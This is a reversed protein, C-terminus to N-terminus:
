RLVVQSRRRLAWGRAGPRPTMDEVQYGLREGLAVVAPSPRFGFRADDQWRQISDARAAERPATLADPALGVETIVDALVAEARHGVLDEYRVLVLGGDLELQLQLLNGYARVWQHQRREPVVAWRTWMSHLTAMPNRVLGVFQLADRGRTERYRRMLALTASSHLHHPSKEVLVPGYGTALADWLAFVWSEDLSGGPVAGLNDVALRHLGRVGSDSSMPVVRSDLMPVQPLGLAATAKAWFLTENEQHQTHALLQVDPHRVLSRQLFSSGSSKDSLIAISRPM